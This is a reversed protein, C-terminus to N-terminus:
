VLKKVGFAAQVDHNGFAAVSAGIKVIPQLGGFKKALAARQHDHEVLEAVADPKAREVALEPLFTKWGKQFLNKRDVEAGQAAETFKFVGDSQEGLRQRVGAVRVWFVPRVDAAYEFRPAPLIKDRQLFVEFDTLFILERFFFTSQNQTLHQVFDPDTQM